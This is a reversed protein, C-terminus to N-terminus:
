EREIGYARVSEVDLEDIRVGWMLGDRVAHPEFGEPTGVSATLAGTSDFVLWLRAPMPIVPRFPGPVEDSPHTPWVGLPGAYDGVLIEDEDTVVLGEYAPFREPLPVSEAVAKFDESADVM